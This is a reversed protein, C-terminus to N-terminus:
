RAFSRTQLRRTVRTTIEESRSNNRAAEPQDRAQGPEARQAIRLVGEALQRPAGTEFPRCRMQHIRMVRVGRARAALSQIACM